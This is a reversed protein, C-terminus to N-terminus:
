MIKGSHILIDGGIRAYNNYSNHPTYLRAYLYINFYGTINAFYIKVLFSHYRHTGNSCMGSNQLTTTGSNYVDITGHSDQHTLQGNYEIMVGSLILQRFEHCIIPYSSFSSSHRNTICDTASLMDIKSVNRM